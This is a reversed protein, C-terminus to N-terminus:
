LGRLRRMARRGPRAPRTGGRPADGPAKGIGSRRIMRSV